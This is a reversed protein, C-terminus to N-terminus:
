AKLNPTKFRVLKRVLRREFEQTEQHVDGTLELITANCTGTSCLSWALRTGRSVSGHAVSRAQTQEASQLAIAPTAHTREAPRAPSALIRTERLNLINQEIRVLSPNTRRTKHRDTAQSPNTRRSEHRILQTAPNTQRTEHSESVSAPNTGDIEHDDTASSPNTRRIEPRETASAPNTGYTECEGHKAESEMLGGKEGRKRVGFAARVVRWEQNYVSESTARPLAGSFVNISLGAPPSSSQDWPRTTTSRDKDKPM